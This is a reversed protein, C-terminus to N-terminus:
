EEEDSSYDFYSLLYDFLRKYNKPTIFKHLKSLKEIELLLDLASIDDANEFLIPLIHDTLDNL